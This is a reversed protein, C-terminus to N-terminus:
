AAKKKRKKGSKQEPNSFILNRVQRATESLDDTRGRFTRDMAIAFDIGLGAICVLEPDITDDLAYRLNKARQRILPLIQECYLKQGMQPDSFLAAVLLPYIEVMTRLNQDLWPLMGEGMEGATETQKLREDAFAGEMVAVLPKIVAEVFLNEKSEFHHFLTAINVNAAKALNRTTAGQLSNQAFVEQAAEIIRSKREDARMYARKRKLPPAATGARKAPAKSKRTTM